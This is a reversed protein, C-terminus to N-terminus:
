NPRRREQSRSFDDRTARPRQARLAPDSFEFLRSLFKTRDFVFEGEADRSMEEVAAAAFLADGAFGIPDSGSFWWGPLGQNATMMLAVARARYYLALTRMPDNNARDAATTIQMLGNYDYAGTRRKAQCAEIYGRLDEGSVAAANIQRMMDRDFM